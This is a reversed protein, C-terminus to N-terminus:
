QIVGEIKKQVQMMFKKTKNLEEIDGREYNEELNVVAKELAGVLQKLFEAEERKM